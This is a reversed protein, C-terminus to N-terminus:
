GPRKTRIRRAWGKEKAEKESMPSVSLKGTKTDLEIECPDGPRLVFMSDGALDTPVYIWVQEYERGGAKTKRGIVTGIGKSTIANRPESRIRPLSQKVTNQLSNLAHLGYVQRLCTPSVPRTWTMGLSRAADRSSPSLREM